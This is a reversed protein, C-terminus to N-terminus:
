VSVKYWTLDDGLVYLQHDHENYYADGPNKCEKRSKHWHLSPASLQEPESKGVIYEVWDLLQGHCKSCTSEASGCLDCLYKKM